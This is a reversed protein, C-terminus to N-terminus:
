LTAGPCYASAIFCVPGAEDAEYVPVLNPHDLGAAARAERRFRQRLGPDALANVRPVKLAVERGLRPDYALYVIGFAGQGLERRLQFRGLSTWPMEASPATPAARGPLVQRLLEVCALDQELERRVDAPLDHPHSLPPAGGVALAAECAALLASYQEESTETGAPDM